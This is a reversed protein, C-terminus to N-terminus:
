LRSCDGDWDGDGEEGEEGDVVSDETAYDECEGKDAEEGRSETEDALWHPLTTRMAEDIHWGMESTTLGLARGFEISAIIQNKFRKHVEGLPAYVRTEGDPILGNVENPAGATPITSNSIHSKASQFTTSPAQTTRSNLSTGASKSSAQSPSTSNAHATVASAYAKLSVPTRPPQINRSGNFPGDSLSWGFPRDSRSSPQFGERDNPIPSAASRKVGNSTQEKSMEGVM